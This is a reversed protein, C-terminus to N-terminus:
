SGCRRTIFGVLRDNGDDGQLTDDDLGGDLSDNGTGGKLLDIGVGGLLNDNGGDGELTDNGFGGDLLDDGEGGSIRDNGKGGDLADNGGNGAIKDEGDDGSLTDNASGGILNDSGVGGALKFSIQAASADFKDDGFGGEGAVSTIGTFLETEQGQTPGTVTLSSGGTFTYVESIDLKNQTRAGSFSGSNLRLLSSNTVGLAAAVKSTSKAGFQLGPIPIPGLELINTKFVFVEFYINAGVSVGGSADFLASLGQNANNKIELWRIKGDNNPDNLPLNLTGQIYAEGGVSVLGKIGVSLDLFLKSDLYFGPAKGTRTDLYLGEFINEVNGSNKFKVLGTADFGYTTQPISASVQGGFGASIPPTPWLPITISGGASVSLGPLTFRFLDVNSNGLLLGFASAPNKLISFDFSTKGVAGASAFLNVQTSTPQNKLAKDFEAKAANLGDIFGSLNVGSTSLDLNPNFKDLNPISFGGLSIDGTSSVSDLVKVLSNVTVLSEIFSTDIPSYRKFIPSKALDLLSYKLGFSDIIPLPANLFDLPASFKDAVGKIDKIFPTLSKVISGLDLRVNKFELNTGAAATSTNYVVNTKFSPFFQTNSTQLTIQSDLKLNAVPTINEIGGGSTIDAAITFDASFAKNAGNNAAILELFGLKGTLNGANEAKISFTLEKGATPTLEFGNVGLKFNITGLFEQTLNVGGAFKLGLNPLGLDTDLSFLNTNRKTFGLSFQESNQDYEIKAGTGSLVRNLENKLSDASYNSVIIASLKLRLDSIYKLGQNIEEIKQLKDGFVSQVITSNLLQNYITDQVGALIGDLRERIERVATDILNPNAAELAVVQGQIVAQFRDDEQKIAGLQAAGLTIGRVVASFLEGEDGVTDFKNVRADISHGIEELIVADLDSRDATELFTDAVYITNNSAAYAAKATGLTAKGIVEIQPLGGFVGDAWEERLGEVLARDYKSGFISDFEGWFSDLNAWHSLQRSITTLSLVLSANM